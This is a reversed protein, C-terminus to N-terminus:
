RLTVKGKTGRPGVLSLVPLQAIEVGPTGDALVWDETLVGTAVRGLSEREKWGGSARKGEHAPM